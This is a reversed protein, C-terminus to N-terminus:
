RTRILIEKLSSLMRASTYETLRKIWCVIVKQGNKMVLLDRNNQRTIRNRDKEAPLAVYATCGFRRTYNLNPRRDNWKEHPTSESVVTPLRNQLHNATMVGEGWYKNPLGSDILMSRTMEVLCRTKRETRGNQEPTYPITLEVQIGENKM